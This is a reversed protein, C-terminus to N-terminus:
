TFLLTNVVSFILYIGFYKDFQDFKKIFLVEIFVGPIIHHFSELYNSLFSISEQSNSVIHRLITVDFMYFPDKSGGNDDRKGLQERQDALDIFRWSKRGIFDSIVLCIGLGDVVEHFFVWFCDVDAEFITDVEGGFNDHEHAVSTVLLQM